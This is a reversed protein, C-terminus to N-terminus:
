RGHAAEGHPCTWVGKRDRGQKCVRMACEFDRDGNAPLVEYAEVHMAPPRYVQQWLKSPHLPDWYAWTAENSPNCHTPDQVFRFGLGYPAAIMVIADHKSVRHLEAMVDLTRWPPIHEWVHSLRTLTVCDDPLPWPTVTLDHVLDVGDVARIDMGVFGPAKNQGCGLDLQIGAHNKVLQRVHDPIRRAM